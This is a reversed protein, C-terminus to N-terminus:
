LLFTMIWNKKTSLCNYLQEHDFSDHMDGNKGYLKSGKELYYPPDLFILNRDQLTTQQSSQNELFESFDLNSIEFYELNLKRVREISSDTFRKNAAEKSFGGSLTAGSFSSRNIVFYYAAQTVSDQITLIQDRYQIFQDKTVPKLTRIKDILETKKTKVMKWFNALPQFKDNARIPIKYKNQFYFEFSGGGLFPSILVRFSSIDINKTNLYDTLEREIIKCARTKGGVYRLPSKNKVNM